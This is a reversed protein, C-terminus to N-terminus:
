ASTRRPAQILSDAALAGEVPRIWKLIPRMAKSLALSMLPSLLLTAVIAMVYGAYFIPRSRGNSLCVFSVVALLAALAARVRSEGASLVQYKGKQLAQVPDVRAAARAPIWAAVVSTAIGIGLALVLLTPNRAIEDTHQAVGYVDTILRGISAAIGNAILVGFLLGGLSGVLGTVASEGLFLSRIQRRAAIRSRCGARARIAARVAIAFSNYIIFMGIFLAFASSLNVMM